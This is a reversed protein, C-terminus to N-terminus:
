KLWVLFLPDKATVDWAEVVDPRKVVQKLESVKMRNLEKLKKKSLKPKEEAEKTDKKDGNQTAAGKAGGETTGAAENALDTQFKDFIHKFEVQHRGSLMKEDLENVYEVQVGLQEGSQADNHTVPKLM